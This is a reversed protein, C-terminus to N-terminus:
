PTVTLRVTDEDSLDGDSVELRVDYFGPTTPADFTVRRERTRLSIPTDASWMFRLQDNPYNDPDQSASGDLTVSQGPRVDLDPGADAVPPLNSTQDVIVTLERATTEVRDSVRLVVDYTGPAAYVHEPRPLSSSSGDGFNWEYVVFEDDLVGASFQVRLPGAPEAELRRIEPAAPTYAGLDVHGWAEGGRGDVAAVLVRRNPPSRFTHEVRSGSGTTDGDYWGGRGGREAEFNWFFSLDDGDPDSAEVSFRWATREGSLPEFAVDGIQPPQNESQESPFRVEVLTRADGGEGARERTTIAINSEPDIFTRGPMLALDFSFDAPTEPTGDVSVPQVDLQTASDGDRGVRIVLAGNTVNYLGALDADYDVAARTEVWLEKGRATDVVLAQPGRDSTPPRIEFVGGRGVRLVDDEALWGLGHRFAAQFAAWRSSSGMTDFQSGYTEVHGDISSEHRAHPLEFGHGLEHAILGRTGRTDRVAGARARAADLEVTRGQQSVTFPSPASGSGFGSGGSYAILFRRYRTLDYGDDLAAFYPAPEASGATPPVQPLVYWPTVDIELRAAGDSVALYWDAVEDALRRAADASMPAPGEANHVLIFLTREVGDAGADALGADLGLDSPSPEPEAGDHEAAADMGTLAGANPETECGWLMWLAGLSFGFRVAPTM